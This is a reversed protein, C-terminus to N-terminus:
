GFEWTWIPCAPMSGSRLAPRFDIHVIKALPKGVGIVLDAATTVTSLDVNLLSVPGAPAQDFTTLVAIPDDRGLQM